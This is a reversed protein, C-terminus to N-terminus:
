KVKSLDVINDLEIKVKFNDNVSYSILLEKGKLTDYHDYEKLLSASPVPVQVLQKRAVLTIIERGQIEKKVKTDMIFTLLLHSKSVITQGTGNVFTNDDKPEVSELLGYLYNGHGNLKIEKSTTM